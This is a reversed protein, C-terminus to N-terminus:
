GHQLPVVENRLIGVEIALADFTRSVRQAAIESQGILDNMVRQYGGSGERFLACMKLFANTHVDVMDSIAHEIERACSQLVGSWLGWRTVQSRTVALKLSAYRAMEIDQVVDEYAGNAASCFEAIRADEFRYAFVAEPHYKPLLKGDKELMAVIAAGPLVQFRSSLADFLGHGITALFRANAEIDTFRVYPHFMLFGSSGYSIGLSRLIHVAQLNDEVRLGKHFLDLQRQTGSELGVEVQVLGITALEEVYSRLRV